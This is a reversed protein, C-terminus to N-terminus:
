IGFNYCVTFITNSLFSCFQISNGFPSTVSFRPNLDWCGCALSAQGCAGIRGARCFYHWSVRPVAPQWSHLESSLGQRLSIFCATVSCPLGYDVALPLPCCWAILVGWKVSGRPAFPFKSFAWIGNWKFVFVFLFSLCVFLYVGWIRWVSDLSVRESLRHHFKRWFIMKCFTCTINPSRPHKVCQNKVFYPSGSGM